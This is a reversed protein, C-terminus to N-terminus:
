QEDAPKPKTSGCSSGLRPGDVVVRLTIGNTEIVWTQCNILSAVLLFISHWLANRYNIYRM